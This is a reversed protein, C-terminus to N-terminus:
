PLPPSLDALAADALRAREGVQAVSLVGDETVIGTLLRAPVLEFGVSRAEVGQPLRGAVAPWELPELVLPFRQAAIKLAECLAYVPVGAERAALALPYSGVKNVLSGDPRVSDAGLAVASAEGIFVGCAADPVLTVALGARALAVAAALGEGGPRSESVLVRRLQRHERDAHAAATSTARALRALVAEVTGSRSLTYVVPGLLSRAHRYISDAASDWDASLRQAEAHM